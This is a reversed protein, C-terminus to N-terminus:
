VCPSSSATATASQGGLHWTVSSTDAFAVAVRRPRQFPLFAVPQGRDAPAPAFTNRTGIPVPLGFANPNNYGFYATHTGNHNDVVCVDRPVVPAFTTRDAGAPQLAADDVYLDDAGSTTSIWWEARSLTKTWSIPIDNASVQTWGGASVAGSALPVSVTTNDTFFLKAKILATTTPAGDALRIWATTKYRAGNTLQVGQAPGAWEYTRNTARLAQGGTHVPASVAGATCPSFCYWGSGGSEVDGNDLVDVGEPPSAHVNFALDDVLLDPTGATTDVWWEARSFSGTFSVPINNGRIQTWGTDSVPATGFPITVQGTSTWVKLRIEATATGPTALRVWASADYRGDLGVTVGQAPGVWNASRGTVKLAGSGGHVPSSVVSLGGCGGLCYWGSTNGGEVDGNALTNTNGPLKPTVFPPAVPPPATGVTPTLSVEDFTCTRGGPVPNQWLFVEAWGTGPPATFAAVQQTYATEDRYNLTHQFSTTGPAPGGRVGVYCQNGAGSSRGWGALTYNTGGTLGLVPQRLGSGSAATAATRVAGTGAVADTVAATGLALPTWGNTGHAFGGAVIMNGLGARVATGVGDAVVKVSAGATTPMDVEVQKAVGDVTVTVLYDGQFGRVTYRGDTSTTGSANTWWQKFVLDRLALLNPKPTWDPRYFAVLPNWINPEWFGFSSVGTIAPQSFAMTLFDRTYDAQLQEDDTAVDFETIELPLGLDSYQDFLAPLEAPPTLQLGSFHGQIGLVDVPAGQALLDALLDHIYRQKRLNWGNDEVLDYENLYLLADPDAQRALEFWRGIEASGLIDTVNHESYPENVVDWEDAIGQLASVEDTVHADIRARLAAPDGALTRVDPPMLGWSGWVLNHGHVTHGQEKLWELAPLTERTRHATDEWYNWKLDNGLAVSNFDTAVVDRYKDGDPSDSVLWPAAAATGFDFDHDQMAVKVDAGPVPHGAPDVVDVKLDGKRYQDIRAAAGARWAADSERGAYTVAPYGPPDGQGYDLVSVGAIQLVQPGYGLWFQFHADGPAYNEAIRFPFQFRQWQTGIKLPANASKTYSGGDREFIFTAQGSGSGAVPAISRAWFTALAADGQQVAGGIEAGLAIEYEGDLGTSTPATTTTIQLAEAFDTHSVPLIEVRPAPDGKFQNFATLPHAPMVEVPAAARAPDAFGVLATSLLTSAAVVRLLRRKRPRLLTM